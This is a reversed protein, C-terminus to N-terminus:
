RLRESLWFACTMEDTINVYPGPGAAFFLLGDRPVGGTYRLIAVNPRAPDFEVKFVWNEGEGNKKKPSRLQFGTPRTTAIM